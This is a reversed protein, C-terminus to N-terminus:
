NQSLVSSEAQFTGEKFERVKRKIDAIMNKHRRGRCQGSAKKGHPLIGIMREGLFIRIHRTGHDLRFDGAERLIAIIEDPVKFQKSM